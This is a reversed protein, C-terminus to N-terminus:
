CKQETASNTGCFSSCGCANLTIGNTQDMPLIKPGMRPPARAEGAFLYELKNPLFSNRRRKGNASGFRTAATRKQTPTVVPTKNKLTPPHIVAM